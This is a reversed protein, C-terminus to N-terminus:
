KVGICLVYNTTDCTAVVNHIWTEDTASSTGVWADGGPLNVMWGNCINGWTNTGDSASSSWWGNAAPLVGAGSLSTDINGDLLDMWDDAIRTEVGGGSLGYIPVSTPYGYAAPMDSIQREYSSLFGHVKTVGVPTGNDCMTQIGEDGGLDGNSAGTNFLVLRSVSTAGGPIPLIITQKGGGDDCGPLLLMLVAACVSLGSILIRIM